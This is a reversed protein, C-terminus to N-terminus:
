LYFVMLYEEETEKLIEFGIKQYMRAAYNEKQVALSAKTFGKKKLHHLMRKMLATGISQNRFEKYLAIAFEPTQDDIYGFGKVAGALIRTWVAGVTKGDVEALFCFDGEQGWVEFYIRLEPEKIIERPVLNRQDPQYIAEYLMEKLIDVEDAKMERIVYKCM